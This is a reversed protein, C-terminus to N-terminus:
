KRGRRRKNSEADPAPRESEDLFRFTTATVATNVKMLDDERSPQNVNFETLNVIRKLHGVEDFFTGVQHYTGTVEISVPVAAYYDNRQEPLPKFLRIELGADRAKDSVESLLLDIEKEDPLEQLAKKLEIDLVKVQERFRPLNRVIGKQEAIKANLGKPGDIEEELKAIQEHVPSLFSYYYGGCLVLLSGLVIGIRHQIPLELIDIVKQNM